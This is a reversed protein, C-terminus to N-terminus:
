EDPDSLGRERQPGFVTWRTVTYGRGLKYVSCQLVSGVNEYCILILLYFVTPTSM